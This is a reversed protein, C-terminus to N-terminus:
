ECVEDADCVGYRRKRASPTYPYGKGTCGFEILYAAAWLVTGPDPTTVRLLPELPFYPVCLTGGEGQRRKQKRKGSSAFPLRRGCGVFSEEDM